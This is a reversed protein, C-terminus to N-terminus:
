GLVRALTREYAERIAAWDPLVGDRVVSRGGVTVDRVARPSAGFVVADPLLADDAGALAADDAALEVRDEAPTGDMGIAAYGEDSAARLLAPAEAAVHRAEARSRDDLEIARAEEFPDSVAHSDVGTCLRTGASVLAAVDALGDGLDRETTRCICAFSRAAGLARAEDPELHTAHVAVFRGDLVGDEALMQVPRLGHEALCEEVERRQEAVHAHLPVERGRAFDAAERLWARPVARVSHPAVGVSVCPDDRFREAIREVDALAADVDPDSFRRQAGEAAKGAGGRQYLVRLLTIRLGVDRAARV